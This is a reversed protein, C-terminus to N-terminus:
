AKKKESHTNSSSPIRTATLLPTVRNNQWWMAIVPSVTQTTCEAQLRLHPWSTLRLRDAEMSPGLPGWFCFTISIVLQLNSASNKEDPVSGYVLCADAIRGRKIVARQALLGRSM